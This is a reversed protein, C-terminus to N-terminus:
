AFKGKITANGIFLCLPGLILAWMLRLKTLTVGFISYGMGDIEQHKEVRSSFNFLADISKFPSDTHAMKSYPIELIKAILKKQIDAVKTLNYWPLTFLLVVEVSFIVFSSAIEFLILSFNANKKYSIAMKFMNATTYATLSGWLFTILTLVSIYTHFHAAIDKIKRHIHLYEQFLDDLVKTAQKMREFYEELEICQLSSIHVMYFLFPLSVVRTYCSSLLEFFDIWGYHSSPIESTMEIIVPGLISLFPLATLCFWSWGILLNIKKNRSRLKIKLRNLQETSQVDEKLRTIITDVYNPYRAFLYMGMNHLIVFRVNRVLQFIFMVVMTFPGILSVIEKYRVAFFYMNFGFCVWVLVLSIVRFVRHFRRQTSSTYSAPNSDVCQFVRCMYKHLFSHRSDFVDDDDAIDHSTEFVHYSTTLREMSCTSSMASNYSTFLFNLIFNLMKKASTKNLYVGEM